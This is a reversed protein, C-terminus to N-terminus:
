RLSNADNLKEKEITPHVPKRGQWLGLIGVYGFSLTFLTLTPVMTPYDEAALLVLAFAYVALMLEVWVSWDASLNYTKGSRRSDRAELNFKPTRIFVAPRQDLAALAARTNNFAIGVGISMLAPFYLIRREWDPYVAWQSLTFMLPPGFSVLSLWPLSPLGAGHALLVPLCTLLALLMFVHTLYASLHLYASLRQWPTLSSRWIPGALKILVRISGRAWRYQQQKFAAILPPLEAPAVVEPVYSFRWGKLQARYSLDLDEALTDSQWGGADLICTRRWIGASGNFNFLLGSRSRTIQEIVFHGDLLLAQSHTLLSHGDNLHGWRAQVMGLGPDASLYPVMRRLFDPPPVFDADFIAIYGGTASHLAEGLAGAKYGKRDTRHLLEINVGRARYYAVCQRSLAYTEDTSDDLVQISLAEGPYDLHCAADILREIVFRENYVPLQVTVLPWLEPPEPIPPRPRRNQYLFLLSLVLSHIGYISLGCLAFTYLAIFITSVM